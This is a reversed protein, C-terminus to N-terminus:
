FIKEQTQIFDIRRFDRPRYHAVYIIRYHTKRYTRRESGHDILVHVKRALERATDLFTRYM